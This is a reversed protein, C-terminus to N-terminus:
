SSRSIFSIKEFTSSMRAERLAVPVMTVFYNNVHHEYLKISNVSVCCTYVTHGNTVDDTTAVPLGPVMRDVM